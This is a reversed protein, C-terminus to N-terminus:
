NRCFNVVVVEVAFLDFGVKLLEVLVNSIGFFILVFGLREFLSDIADASDNGGEVDMEHLKVLRVVTVEVQNHLRQSCGDALVGVFLDVHQM